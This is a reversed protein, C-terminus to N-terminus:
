RAIAPSCRLGGGTYNPSYWPNGGGDNAPPTSPNGSAVYDVSVGGSSGTIESHSGGACTIDLDWSSFTDQPATNQTYIALAVCSGTLLSTSVSM